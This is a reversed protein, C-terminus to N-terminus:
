KEEMEIETETKKAKFNLIKQMFNREFYSKPEPETEPPSEVKPSKKGFDFSSAGSSLSITNHIRNIILQYIEDDTKPLSEHKRQKKVLSNFKNKISHENRAGGMSKM